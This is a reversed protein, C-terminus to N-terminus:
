LLFSKCSKSSPNCIIKWVCLYIMSCALLDILLEILLNIL